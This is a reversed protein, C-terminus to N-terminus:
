FIYIIKDNKNTKTFASNILKNLKYGILDTNKFIINNTKTIMNYKNNFFLVAANCLISAFQIQQTIFPFTHTSFSKYLDNGYNYITASFLTQNTFQKNFQTLEKINLGFEISYKKIYKDAGSLQGLTVIEFNSINNIYKQKLKYLTDRIKQKDEYLIDGTLLLRIYDSQTTKKINYLESYAIKTFQTKSITM